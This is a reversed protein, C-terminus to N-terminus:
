VRLVSRNEERRFICLGGIQVALGIGIDTGNDSNDLACALQCACNEFVAYVQRTRPALDCGGWGLTARQLRGQRITPRTILMAVM